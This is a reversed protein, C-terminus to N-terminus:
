EGEKKEFCGNDGLSLVGEGFAAVHGSVIAICYVCHVLVCFIM